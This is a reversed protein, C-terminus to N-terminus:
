GACLLEPPTGSILLLGMLQAAHRCCSATPTSCLSADSLCCRMAIDSGEALLYAFVCGWLSFAGGMVCADM